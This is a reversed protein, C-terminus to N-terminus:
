ISQYVFQLFPERWREPHALACSRLLRRTWRADFGFKSQQIAEYQM